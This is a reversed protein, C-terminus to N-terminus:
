HSKHRQKHAKLNSLQTSVHDCQDCPFKLNEHISKIHTYLSGQTNFQRGCQDCSFSRGKHKFDMHYKLKYKTGTKFDCETCYYEGLQHRAEIHQRLVGKETAQYECQPCPYRIGEHKIRIHKYLSSYTTAIYDCQNCQSRIGQHISKYHTLVSSKKTFVAGCEQCKLSPDNALYKNFNEHKAKIHYSLNGRYNAQYECFHCPYKLSEEEKNMRVPTEKEKKRRGVSEHHEPTQLDDNSPTCSYKMETEEHQNSRITPEKEKALHIVIETDSSKRDDDVNNDNEFTEREEEEMEYVKETAENDEQVDCAIEGKATEEDDYAFEIGINIDKMELDRALRLFHRMRHPFFRAEGLYMFQLISEMEQAQVGMLFILSQESPDMHIIKELVPSCASLLIKHAKFQTQDETVVTVDSLKGGEFLDRVVSQLHQPFTKWLLCCEESM